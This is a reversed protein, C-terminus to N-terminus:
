AAEKRADIRTVPGKEPAYIVLGAGAALVLGALKAIIVIPELDGFGAILVDHGAAMSWTYAAPDDGFPLVVKCGHFWTSSKARDWAGSGTCVVLNQDGPNARLAYPPLKPKKISHHRESHKQFGGAGSRTPPKGRKLPNM